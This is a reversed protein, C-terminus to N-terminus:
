ATPSGWRRRCEEAILQHILIRQGLDPCTTTIVTEDARYLDSLNILEDVVEAPTGTIVLYPNQEVCRLVEVTPSYSDLDALSPYVPHRWPRTSGPIGALAPLWVGFALQQAARRTEASSVRVAIALKPHSAHRSPRFENRYADAIDPRPSNHGFQAFAFPLGLFAATLAGRSGSGM